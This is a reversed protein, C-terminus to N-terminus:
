GKVPIEGREWMEKGEKTWDGNEWIKIGKWIITGKNSPSFASEFFGVEGKLNLIGEQMEKGISQGCDGEVTLEGGKMRLGTYDGCNKEVIIKGNLMGLGVLDGCNGKVIIRGGQMHWGVGEECDGEIVLHLKEPNKFGLCSLRIPLEKVDLHVEIPKINEERVGKKKQSLIYNEINKKLFASLFLGLDFKFTQSKKFKEWDFEKLFKNSIKELFSPSVEPFPFSFLFIFTESPSVRKEIEIRKEEWLKKLKKIPKWEEIEEKLDERVEGIMREAKDLKEKMEEIDPEERKIPKEFSNKPM